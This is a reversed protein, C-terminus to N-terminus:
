IFKRVAEIIEDPTYITWFDPGHKSLVVKENVKVTLELTDGREIVFDTYSLGLDQVLGAKVM